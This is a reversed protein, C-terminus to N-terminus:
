IKELETLYGLWLPTSSYCNKLGSRLVRMKEDQDTSLDEAFGSYLTWLQENLTFLPLLKEFYVQMFSFPSEAGSALKPLKIQLLEIM